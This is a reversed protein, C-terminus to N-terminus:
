PQAAHLHATFNIDRAVAGGQEIEFVNICANSQTVTFSADPDMGMLRSVLVQSMVGHTVLCTHEDVLRQLVRDAREVVDALSEAGPARVKSPQANWTAWLDGYQAQIEDVTLGQWAGHHIERLDDRREIPCRTTRAILAATAYARELPSCVLRDIRHTEFYRALAHAQALGTPNLPVDVRGQLRREHNWATEGHRVIYLM